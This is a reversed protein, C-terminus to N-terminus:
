TMKLLSADRVSLSTDKNKDGTDDKEESLEHKCTYFLRDIGISCSTM